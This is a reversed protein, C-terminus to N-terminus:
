VRVVGASFDWRSRCSHYMAVMEVRSWVRVYASNSQSFYISTTAKRTDADCCYGDGAVASYAKRLTFNLQLEELDGSCLDDMVAYIVMNM